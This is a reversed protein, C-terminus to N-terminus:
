IQLDGFVPELIEALSKRARHLHVRVTSCSIGLLTAIEEDSRDQAVRLYICKRMQNPLKQVATRFANVKERDLVRKLPNSAPGTSEVTEIEECTIEASGADAASRKKAHRREIENNFTNRSITLVWGAFRSEDHMNDLNKYLQYFVEQALDQSEDPSMGRREFYRRIQRHLRTFLLHFNGERDRGARFDRIIADLPKEVQMAPLSLDFRFTVGTRDKVAIPGQMHTDLDTALAM